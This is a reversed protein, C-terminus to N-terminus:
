ADLAEDEVRESAQRTHACRRRPPMAHACLREVVRDALEHEVLSARGDRDEAAGVLAFVCLPEDCQM